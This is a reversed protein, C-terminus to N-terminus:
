THDDKSVEQIIVQKSEEVVSTRDTSTVKGNKAKFAEVNGASKSNSPISGNIYKRGEMLHDLLINNQVERRKKQSSIAMTVLEGETKGGFKGVLSKLLGDSFRDSFGALFAILWMLEKNGLSLDQTPSITLLGVVLVLYTISGMIIGMLPRSFLWRLPDELEDDRSNSFRYLISAFSGIISWLLVCVPLDLIVISHTSRIGSKSAFYLFVGIAIIGIASVAVAALKAKQRYLLGKRNLDVVVGLNAINTEVINLDNEDDAELTALSQIMISCLVKEQQTTDLVYLSAELRLTDIAEMLQRRKQEIPNDDKIHFAHYKENAKSARDLCQTIFHGADLEGFIKLIPALSCVMTNAIFSDFISM